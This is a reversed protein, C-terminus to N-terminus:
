KPHHLAPKDAYSCSCYRQSHGQLELELRKMLILEANGLGAVTKHGHAIDMLTLSVLSFKRNMFQNGNLNVTDGM